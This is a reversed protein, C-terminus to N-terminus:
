QQTVKVLTVGKTGQTFKGCERRHGCVRLLVTFDPDM